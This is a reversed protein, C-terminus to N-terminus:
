FTRMQTTRQGRTGLGITTGGLRAVDIEAAGVGGRQSKIEVTQETFHVVSGPADSALPRDFLRSHGLTVLQSGSPDIVGDSIDAYTYQRIVGRRQWVVLGKADGPNATWDGDGLKICDLRGDVTAPLTGLLRNCPRDTQPPVSAGAGPDWYLDGLLMEEGDSGTSVPQITHGPAPDKMSLRPDDISLTTLTELEARAFQSAENADSGSVNNHVARLFLALLGISVFALAAAAILAELLSSGAEAEPRDAGHRAQRKSKAIASM